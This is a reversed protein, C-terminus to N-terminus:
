ALKRRRRALLAALGIGLAIMSGPEPIADYHMNLNAVRTDTFGANDNNWPRLTAAGLNITLNADSYNDNTGGGYAASGDGLTYAYNVNTGIVIMVGTTTNAAFTFSSDMTIPSPSDVGGTLGTGGTRFSWGAPDQENTEATGAITWVSIGFPAGAAEQINWDWGTVTVDNANTVIDFYNAGNGGNGGNTFNFLTSITFQASASACAVALAVGVLMRSYKMKRELEFHVLARVAYREFSCQM